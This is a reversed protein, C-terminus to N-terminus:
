YTWVCRGDAFSNETYTNSNFFAEEWKKSVGALFDYGVEGTEEYQPHDEAHRYISIGTVNIWLKPPDAMKEIAKGLLATPIVRSNIIEARNKETYRCDVNKGCLNILMDAGALDQLWEGETRGNWVHTIINGDPAQPKRSLIIIEDALYKYYRALVGGLYGNGGALIIKKYKM